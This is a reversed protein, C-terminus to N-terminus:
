FTGVTQALHLLPPPRTLTVPAACCSTMVKQISSKWIRKQKEQEGFACTALANISTKQPAMLWLTGQYHKSHTPHCFRKSGHGGTIKWSDKDKRPLGNKRQKQTLHASTPPPLPADRQAVSCTSTGFIPPSLGSAWITM